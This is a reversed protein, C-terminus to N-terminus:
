WRWITGSIRRNGRRRWSRRWTDYLFKVPDAILEDYEERAMWAGDQPPERYQFAVDPEVDIGPIAYYRLGATQALGTWVYVMNPVAADWDYDRCCRMVAEFAQRYDHTVQQCTMGAHVATFEAAFPRIPVRDPKGNRNATVYRHLRQAYLEQMDQM